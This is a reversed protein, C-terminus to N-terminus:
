SSLVAWLVAVALLGLAAGAGLRARRLRAREVVLGGAVQRLLPVLENYCRTRVDARLRRDAVGAAVQQAVNKAVSKLLAEADHEPRRGAPGAAALAQDLLDSRSNAPEDRVLL